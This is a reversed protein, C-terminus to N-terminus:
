PRVFLIMVLFLGGAAAAAAWPRPKILYQGVAWGGLAGAAAASLFKLWAPPGSVSLLVLQAALVFVYHALYINYSNSALNQDSKRPRNWYRLAFSNFFGLAAATQFNLILFFLVGSLEELGKPGRLALYKAAGLGASLLAFLILWSRFSGTFRGREVWKNRFAWVGLGFYVVFFPLRSPRFQIINGLTFLPEPNATKPGLAMMLGVAVFSLITTCGGVALFLKLAPRLGAGFPEDSRPGAELWKRKFRYLAAFVIFFLILLSVFWMYRQYFGDAKMLENMSPILGVDLSLANRMVELWIDWYSASLRFGNRTYHYVLPWIPCVTLICVLWPLGLRRFKGALFAGPGKRQIVPLAFYGATFFLLPMNFADFLASLFVVILSVGPDAVPWWDLGVYANGAHELVVCLVFFYRLNDLFVVRGASDTGTESM